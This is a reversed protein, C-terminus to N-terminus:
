NEQIPESEITVEPEVAEVLKAQKMWTDFNLLMASLQARTTTDKPNLVMGGEVSKEGAMLGSGCAWQMASIAYKWFINAMQERTRLDMVMTGSAAYTDQNFAKIEEPTLIIEDADEYFATWYSAHCMEATVDPMYKIEAAAVPQVQTLITILCLTLAM